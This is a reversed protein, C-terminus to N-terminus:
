QSADSTVNVVLHRENMWPLYGSWSDLFRWHAIESRLDGVVKTLRSSRNAMSIATYVERSYLQAAPVALSFSTVKGSFRQLTEISM